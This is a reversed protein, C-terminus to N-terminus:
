QFMGPTTSELRPRAITEVYQPNLDCGIARYGLDLAVRLTTGSGSFPDMVIGDDPLGALICPKVLADPMTAFHAAPDSETPIIWVSRKNRDDGNSVAKMNGNTKGPVPSGNQSALNPQATRKKSSKAVPEAIAEANFYYRKSKTLLFLYEHSKTCRDTVSEPMPNPKSWIIDQRLYWGDARLAFAVSWPIGILDKPKLGDCGARNNPKAISGANTGQKGKTSGVSGSGNYSDGLNLWLTGDDMLVRRVEAFVAVMKAVYEDPTKELGLQHDIKIAGCKTCSGSERWRGKKLRNANSEGPGIFADKSSIAATNEVYYRDSAKHECDADGGEWRATGYDRLGWYPPSTVCCNVSEDPLTRLWELCDSCDVSWRKDGNIVSQWNM